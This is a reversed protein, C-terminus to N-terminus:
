EFKLKAPLSASVIRSKLGAINMVGNPGGSENNRLFVNRNKIKCKVNQM